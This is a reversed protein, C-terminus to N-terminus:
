RKSILLNHTLSEWLVFQSESKDGECKGEGNTTPDDPRSARAHADFFVVLCAAIALSGLILKITLSRKMGINEVIVFTSLIKNRTPLFNTPEDLLYYNLL